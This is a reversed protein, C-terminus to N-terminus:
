ANKPEAQTQAKVASAYAACREATYFFYMAKAKWWDIEQQRSEWPETTFPQGDRIGAMVGDLEIVFNEPTGFDFYAKGAKNALPVSASM